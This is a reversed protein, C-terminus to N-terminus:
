KKAKGREKEYWEEDHINCYLKPVYEYDDPYAGGHKKPDYNKRGFLIKYEVTDRPCYEGALRMSENCILRKVHGTCYTKPETGKKFLEEYGDEAEECLTSGLLGSKQCIYVKVIDYKKEERKDIGMHVVNAINQWLSKVIDSNANLSIKGSDCGIWTGITYNSTSGELYLDTNFKNIGVTNYSTFGRAHSGKAFGRTTNTRLADRLLYANTPDMVQNRNISTSNMIPRGTPDEIRLIPGSDMYEGDRQFMMYASTLNKLSVGRKLNGLALSDYNLDNVEGEEVLYETLNLSRLFELYKEQPLGKYFEVAGVNSNNELALRMTLFGKYGGYDNKIEDNPLDDVISGLTGGNELVAGYLFPKIASGPIRPVLSRNLIKSRSSTIDLGGVIAVVMGTNNDMVVSASQPQPLRGEDLNYYEKSFKLIGNEDLEVGGNEELYSNDIIVYDRNITYYEEPINLNGLYNTYLVNDEIEYVDILDLKNGVKNFLGLPLSLDGLKNLTYNSPDLVLNFENDYLNKRNFYITSGKSDIINNYQDFQLALIGKNGYNKIYEPFNKYIDELKHQLEEDISSYIKYGGTFLKHEAEDLNVNYYKSIYKTAEEKIYDTSYSSMNHYKKIGPKLTSMVDEEIAQDYEEKSIYGLELMKMLVIKQRELSKENKIIYLEEGNLNAVGLVSGHDERRYDSPYIRKLPPYDTPSKAIGALLACEELSLEGIDKSFYTQAAAQVGFAGQGLDIRNLYAVLIEEKSLETEMRLALYAEAIKRNLTRVNTLYVNKVLQQTITSGGRLQGGKSINDKIAGGIGILDVGGHKFFREDEIAIVAEAMYDPIQEKSVITRYERSEIKELLKGNQDYISSTQNFSKSLNKMNTTPTESLIAVIVSAFITGAIFIILLLFLLVRKLNINEKFNKEKMIGGGVNYLM